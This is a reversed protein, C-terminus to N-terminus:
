RGLTGAIKDKFILLLIALGFIIIPYKIFYAGVAPFNILSNFIFVGCVLVILNNAADKNMGLM